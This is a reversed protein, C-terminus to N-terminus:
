ITKMLVQNYSTRVIYKSNLKNVNMKKKIEKIQKMIITKPLIHKSYKQIKNIKVFNKKKIEMIHKM